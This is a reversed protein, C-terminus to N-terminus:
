CKKKQELINEKNRKKVFKAPSGFYLSWEKDILSKLVLSNAGVAVGEGIKVGPLIVTNAGIISNKELTVKGIVSNSFQKPIMPNTLENTYDSSKSYIKCGQSLGSFDMIECKGSAQIYCFAGLHVFNGIECFGDKASIICYDDIRIHNKLLINEPSYFIVNRSILVNDGFKKLGITKLENQSYFTNM